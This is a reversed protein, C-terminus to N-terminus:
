VYMSINWSVFFQGPRLDECWNKYTKTRPVWPWLMDGELASWNQAEERFLVHFWYPNWSIVMFFGHLWWSFVMYDGHFWVDNQGSKLPIWRERSKKWPNKGLWFFVVDTAQQWASRKGLAVVRKTLQVVDGTRHAAVTAVTAVSAGCTMCRGRLQSSPPVLELEVRCTRCIRPPGQVYEFGSFM